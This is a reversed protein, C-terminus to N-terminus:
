EETQETSRSFLGSPEMEIRVAISFESLISIGNITYHTLGQTEDLFKDLQAEFDQASKKDEQFAPVIRKTSTNM